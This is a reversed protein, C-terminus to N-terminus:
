LVPQPCVPSPARESSGVPDAGLGAGAPAQPCRPSSSVSSVSPASPRARQTDRLLAGKGLSDECLGLLFTAMTVWKQALFCSLAALIGCGFGGTWRVGSGSAPGGGLRSQRARGQCRPGAWLGRPGLSLGPRRQQGPFGAGPWTCRDTRHKGGQSAPPGRLSSLFAAREEAHGPGWGALDGKVGLGGAGRSSVPCPPPSTRLARGPHVHAPRDPCSRVVEGRDGRPPLPPPSSCPGPSFGTASM